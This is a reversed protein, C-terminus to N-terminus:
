AAMEADGAYIAGLREVVAAQSHYRRAHAFGRQGWERRLGADAVLWRLSGIGDAFPLGGWMARMRGTVTPDDAHAVVPIGMAWAEIASLGYGLHLQDVFIDARGKRALSEQWTM